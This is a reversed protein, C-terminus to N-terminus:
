TVNFTWPDMCQLHIGTYIWCSAVNCLKNTEPFQEVHKRNTRWGDDSYCVYSYRCCIASTLGNSSGVAIAAPLLLPKVLVLHQLCLQTHEQHRTSIGGSVHLATELFLSHLTADQRIYILIYKRYVPGQVNFQIHLTENLVPFINNTCINWLVNWSYGNEDEPPYKNQSVDLKETRATFVFYTTSIKSTPFKPVNFLIFHVNKGM